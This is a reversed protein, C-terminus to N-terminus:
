VLSLLNQALTTKGIGPSGVLLLGPATKDKKSKYNKIWTKAKQISTKNGIMTNLDKPAYKDVWLESYNEEEKVSEFKYEKKKIEGKLCQVCKKLFTINDCSICKGRGGNSLSM